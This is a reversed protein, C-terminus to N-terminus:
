GNGPKDAFGGNKKLRWIDCSFRKYRLGVLVKDCLLYNFGAM